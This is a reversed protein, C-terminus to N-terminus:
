MDGARRTLPDFSNGSSTDHDSRGEPSSGLTRTAELYAQVKRAHSDNRRVHVGADQLKKSFREKRASQLQRWLRDWAQEDDALLQPHSPAVRTMMLSKLLRHSRESAPVMNQATKANHCSKCLLQLNEPEDSDGRIHDIDDGPIGCQQCRGEDRVRVETRIRPTVRRGLSRYGGMLLFANKTQMALQVDPQKIRGDRFVRRLYRVHATVEQCWTSCYLGQISTSLEQLCNACHDDEFYRPHPVNVAFPPEM